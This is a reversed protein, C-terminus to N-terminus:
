FYYRLTAAIDAYEDVYRYSAGLIAKETLTYNFGAKLVVNNDSEEDHLREYGLGANVEFKDTVLHRVQVNASLIDASDSDSYASESSSFVQGNFREEVLNIFDTSYKLRGLNISYDLNTVASLRQIYGASLELRTFEADLKGETYLQSTGVYEGNQFIDRYDESVSNSLDDSTSAYLGTLYWNSSVQKSLKVAYGDFSLEDLDDVDMKAYGVEVYDYSLGATENAVATISFLSLAGAIVAYKM